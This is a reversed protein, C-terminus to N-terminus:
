CEKATCLCWCKRQVCYSAYLTFTLCTSLRRQNYVLRTFFLCVTGIRTGLSEAHNGSQTTFSDVHGCGCPQTNCGSCCRTFSHARNCPKGSVQKKPFMRSLCLCTHKNMCQLLSIWKVQKVGQSSYLYHLAGEQPSPWQM